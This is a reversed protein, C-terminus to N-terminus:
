PGNIVVEQAPEAIQRLLPDLIGGNLLWLFVLSLLLLIILILVILKATEERKKRVAELKREYDELDTIELAEKNLKGIVKTKKESGDETSPAEEEPETLDEEPAEMQEQDTIPLIERGKGALVGIGDAREGMDALAELQETSLMIKEGNDLVCSGDDYVVATYVNGNARILVSRM